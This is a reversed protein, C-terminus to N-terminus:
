AAREITDIAAHATKLHDVAAHVTAPNFPVATLFHALAAPGWSCGTCFERTESESWHGVADLCGRCMRAIKGVSWPAIGGTADGAEHLVIYVARSDDATFSDLTIGAAALIARGQRPGNAISALLELERRYHEDLLKAARIVPDIDVATSRPPFQPYAEM